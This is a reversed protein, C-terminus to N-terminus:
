DGSTIYEALSQLEAIEGYSIREARIEARIEELRAAIREAELLEADAAAQADSTTMGEAELEAVRKVYARGILGADTNDTMPRGHLRHHARRMTPDTMRHGRRRPRSEGDPM